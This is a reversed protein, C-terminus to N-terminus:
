GIKSTVTILGSASLGAMIGLEVSPLEAIGWFGALGGVLAAGLISFVAVWDRVNARRVLEIVAGVSLVVFANEM